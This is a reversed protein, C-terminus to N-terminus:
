SVIIQFLTSPNHDIRISVPGIDPDDDGIGLTFDQPRSARAMLCPLKWLTADGLRLGRLLRHKTLELLLDSQVRRLDLHQCLRTAPQAIAQRLTIHALITVRTADALLLFPKKQLQEPM